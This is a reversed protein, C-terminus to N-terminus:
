NFFKKNLVDEIMRIRTETKEIEIMAEQITKADLTKGQLVNDIDGMMDENWILEKLECDKLETKLILYPTFFRRKFDENNFDESLKYSVQKLLEVQNTEIYRYALKVRILTDRLLIIFDKAAQIKEENIKMRQSYRYSFYSASIAAILGTIIAVIIGELDM